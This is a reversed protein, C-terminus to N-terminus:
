KKRQEDFAKSFNRLAATETMDQAFYKGLMDMWPTQTDGPWSQFPFTASRGDSIAEVIPDMENALDSKVTKLSSILSASTAYKKYNDARAIFAVYKKAAEKNKSSASVMMSANAISSAWPKTGTPNGPYPILAFKLNPNSKKFEPIIWSGFPIFAVRGALFENKVEDYGGLGLAIKMDYFGQLGRMTKLVNRWAPSDIKTKGSILDTDATENVRYITNAAIMSSWVLSSWSDKFGVVLPRIGAAQLRTMAAKLEPLTTPIKANAKALLDLNVMFGLGDGGVPFQYVKGNITSLKKSAANLTAVWPEGSLDEVYGAKQWITMEQRAHGGFVDPADGGALRANIATGYQPDPVIEFNLKIDPNEKEFAANLEKISDPATLTFVKLTIPTSQALVLSAGTAALLGFALALKPSIKM